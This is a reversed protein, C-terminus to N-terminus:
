ADPMWYQLYNEYDLSQRKTLDGSPSTVWVSPLNIGNFRHSKAQSYAGAEAFTVRSGIILPVDFGYCGFVDGALCSGGALLYEFKGAEISGEVEPRYGFELVEPLHNVSTDLIAVKTNCREFIDIVSAILYGATRVLGAGPEVFVEDALKRKVLAVSRELPDLSMTDEFLYGGGFNVWEFGENGLASDTLAEVNAELQTLDESDANTHFHLGNVAVPSSALVNVLSTLPVGLKSCERAPDYRYDAINSVLTNVRLGLSAYGQIRPGLRHLQSESNFTVFSCISAVEDIEEDRLGPTTFHVPCDPYQDHVLRAEFLSSVAFGDLSPTLVQLVDSFTCAKVSYLVRVEACNRVQRAVSGLYALRDLDYVLAPTTVRGSPLEVTSRWRKTESQLRGKAPPEPDPKRCTADYCMSLQSTM